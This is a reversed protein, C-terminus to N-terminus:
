SWHFYWSSRRRICQRKRSKLFEHSVSNDRRRAPYREQACQLGSKPGASFIQVTRWNTSLLLLPRFRSSPLSIHMEIKRWMMLPSNINICFCGNFM